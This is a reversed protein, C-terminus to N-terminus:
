LLLRWKWFIVNLVEWQPDRKGGPDLDPDLRGHPIASGHQDLDPDVGSVSVLLILVTNHIRIKVTNFPTVPDPHLLAFIVWLFLVFNIFKM